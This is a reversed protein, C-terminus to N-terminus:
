IKAKLQQSIVLWHSPMPTITSQYKIAQKKSYGITSTTTIM